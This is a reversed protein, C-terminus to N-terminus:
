GHGVFVYAGGAKAGFSWPTLRKLWGGNQAREAENVVSPLCRRRKPSTSCKNPAIRKRMSRRLVLLQLLLSHQKDSTNAWDVPELFFVYWWCEGGGLLSM